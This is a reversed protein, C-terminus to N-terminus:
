PTHDLRKLVLTLSHHYIQDKFVFYVFMVVLSVYILIQHRVSLHYKLDDIYKLLHYISHM